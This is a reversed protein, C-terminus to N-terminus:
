GSNWAASQRALANFGNELRRTYEAVADFYDRDGMELAILERLLADSRHGVETM